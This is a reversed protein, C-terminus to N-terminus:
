KKVPVFMDNKTLNCKAIMERCYDLRGANENRSDSGFTFKLGRSKAMKIFEPHPVHAMQNIEIAINRARAKDIILQMREETWVKYYDRAICVPLFLPWGFIDITENELINVTYEMYRKMFDDIDNVYTDLAWIRMYRDNGLPITQPDMLVYDLQDLLEESFSKRWGIHIPQLGIYVPYNRLMNIYNELDSDNQIVYDMGPHELIGFKVNRQRSLEMMKEIPFWRTLHVHLDIIPFNENAHGSVMYPISMASVTSLASTKIFRRRKM